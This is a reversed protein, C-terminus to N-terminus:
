LFKLVLALSIFFLIGITIFVLVLKVKVPSLGASRGTLKQDISIGLPIGLAAAPPISVAIEKTIIYIIIGTILGSVAGILYGAGTSAKVSGSENSKM